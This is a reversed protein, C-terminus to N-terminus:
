SRGEDDPLWGSMILSAAEADLNTDVIRKNSVVFDWAEYALEEADFSAGLSAAVEGAMPYDTSCSFASMISAAAEIDRRSYRPRKAKTTM